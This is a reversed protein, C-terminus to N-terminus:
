ELLYKIATDLQPDKSNNYDDDTLVVQQDPTIGEDNISKGNPTYWKAVTLKLSSGDTFEEYDQISGKGYTLEGIIKARHYDQLAGAVIESASASGNNVLVATKINLLKATQESKYEKKSSGFDEIVITQKEVFQGAIEVASDLYGGPNNRMDLIIGKPDQLIIESALNNFDGATDSDFHVIDIYAIKNDLMKWTVSETKIVDRTIEIDKVDTEGARLVTLVVKTDKKGRILSIAQDLSMETTDQQDIKLIKDGAKLGAKAAPSNPLPAIITLQNDKIGIEAGIGEFSGSLEKNFEKTEEPDLFVSYPDQLSAVMGKLAGYFLIKDDVPKNVYKQSVTTWVKSFLSADTDTGKLFTNAQNFLNVISVNNQNNVSQWVGFYFGSFFCIIIIFIGISFIAVKSGIKLNSKKIEM